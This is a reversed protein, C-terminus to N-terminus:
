NPKAEGMGRGWLSDNIKQWKLMKYKGPVAPSDETMTRRTEDVFRVYKAAEKMDTGCADMYKQFLEKAEKPVGDNAACAALLIAVVLVFSLVILLRQKM